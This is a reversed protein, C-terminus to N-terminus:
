GGEDEDADPRVHHQVSLFSLPLGLSFGLYLDFPRTLGLKGDQDAMGRYECM